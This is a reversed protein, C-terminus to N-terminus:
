CVVLNNVTGSTHGYIVWAQPAIWLFRFHKRKMLYSVGVSAAFLGGMVLSTRGYTPHTGYLEPSGVEVPCNRTHGVYAFTTYADAATAAANVATVAWFSRDVTQAGCLTALACFLVVRKVFKM